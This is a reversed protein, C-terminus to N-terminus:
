YRLFTQMEVVAVETPVELSCAPMAAGRRGENGGGRLCIQYKIAAVLADDFLVGVGPAIKEFFEIEVPLGTQFGWEAVIRMGIDAVEVAMDGWIAEM